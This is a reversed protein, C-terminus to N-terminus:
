MGECTACSRQKEECAGDLRLVDGMRLRGSMGHVSDIEALVDKDSGALLNVVSGTEEAGHLDFPIDRPVDENEEAIDRDSATDRAVCGYDASILDDVGLGADSSSGGDDASIGDIFGVLREGSVSIDESSM